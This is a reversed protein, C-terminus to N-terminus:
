SFPFIPRSFPALHLCLSHHGQLRSKPYCSRSTGIRRERALTATDGRVRAPSASPWQVLGCCTACRNYRSPRLSASTLVLPQFPPRPPAACSYCVPASAESKSGTIQM